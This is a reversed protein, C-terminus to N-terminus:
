STRPSPDGGGAPSPRNRAERRNARRMRLRVARIPHPLARRSEGTVGARPQQRAVDDHERTRAGTLRLEGEVTDVQPVRVGPNEALYELHLERKRGGAYRRDARHEAPTGSRKKYRVAMPLDHRRVPLAGANVHRYVTRECVGFSDPSSVMAHHVSRGRNLAPHRARTQDALVVQAGPARGGSRAAPRRHPAQKKGKQHGHPCGKGQPMASNGYRLAFSAM